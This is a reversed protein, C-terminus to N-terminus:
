GPLSADLTTQGRRDDPEALRSLPFSYRRPSRDARISRPYVVEVVPDSPPYTRNERYEAVTRGTGPIEVDDARRDTISVVLLPTDRDRERDFVLDGPELLCDDCLRPSDDAVDSVERDCGRCRLPEDPSPVRGQNIEIAVRRAHKCLEGRIESDPCSCRGGDLDVVYTRGSASDVAYRGDGLPRVAMPETWARRAREGLADVDPALPAKASAPGNGTHRM